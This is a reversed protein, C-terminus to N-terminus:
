FEPRMKHLIYAARVEHEPPPRRHYQGAGPGGNYMGRDRERVYGYDSAPPPGVIFVACRTVLLAEVNERLLPGVSM